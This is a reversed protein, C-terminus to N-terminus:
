YHLRLLQAGDADITVVFLDDYDDDGITVDATVGLARLVAPVTNSHGVVVVNEGRHDRLIRTALGKPDGAPVLTPAVQGRECLPAVTAQARRFESAYVAQVPLSGLMDRLRLSRAQGTATLDPDAGTGKEAHRVVVVTTFPRGRYVAFQRVRAVLGRALENPVPITLNYQRIVWREGRRQLVGSGRCEGYAENDLVEDFWAWTGADDVTVHRASPVYTWAPGRQFYPRAFERFEAGTWRETADTGLFVADDPLLAFYRDGDGKAAADHFDDLARAVVGATGQLDREAHLAVLQGPLEAVLRDAALAPRQRFDARRPLLFGTRANLDFGISVDTYVITPRGWLRRLDVLGPQTGGLLSLSQWEWPQAVALEIAAADAAATSVLHIGGHAIRFRQRLATPLKVLTPNASAFAVVFGRAALARVVAEAGRRGGEAADTAPTLLLAVPWWGEANFDAPLQLSCEIPEGAAGALGGTELPPLTQQAMAIAICLWVAVLSRVPLLTM